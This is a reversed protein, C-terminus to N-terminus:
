ATCTVQGNVTTPMSVSEWERRGRESQIWGVRRGPTFALFIDRFTLRKTVLGAQQAPTRVERGFKLAGHPRIFNYYCRLLDVMEILSRRAQLVSSTRRHLCALSRRIFLDLREIYATNLDDSDESRELAEELQWPHGTAIRHHVRVISGGRFVKVSVGHVCTPGWARRVAKAYARYGDTSILVRAKITRCRARADRMLALCNHQARTGIRRSLWLRSWVEIASWVWSRDEVKPAFGRLEDAQVEYADVEQIVTDSFARACSAAREIWRGITSRSIGLTRTISAKSSGEMSMTLALDFVTPTSRLRHYPTCSRRTFTRGCTKCRWRQKRGSRTTLFSHRVFVSQKASATSPCAPNPCRVLDPPQPM